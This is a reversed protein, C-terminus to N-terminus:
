RLLQTLGNNNFVATTGLIITEIPVTKMGQAIEAKTLRKM